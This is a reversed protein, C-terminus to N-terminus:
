IGMEIHTGETPIASIPYTEVIINYVIYIVYLRNYVLIILNINSNKYLYRTGVLLIYFYCFIVM